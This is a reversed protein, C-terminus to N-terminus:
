SSQKSLDTATQLVQDAAQGTEQAARTVKGINGTVETTGQAAQSVNRAIEQTAAGQEEVAAAIASAIENIQRITGGIGRIADVAQATAGQVAQIQTGIEETAKSTQNALSKVENAVVAFGKGAEGARAAEITANLALLNTQSAIDNILSVVEGIRSAAEALGRVMADTRQAEDVAGSSIRSSQAVQRTIEAISSSLEEAAAAVTQVNNSASQAATAVIGSQHSTEEATNAMVEATSQMTSAQAGMGDVVSKVSAEFDNALKMMSARRDAEGRRKAEEQDARMREMATANDKFVQVAQAMVGIEDHRDLCPVAVGNDGDALRGMAATMGDLPRTIGRAVAIGLALVVASLALGAILLFNRMEYVPALIEDLGVEAVIAWTVGMFRVPGYAMANVEGSLGVAEGMGDKGALAETVAITDVVRKLVTPETLNRAQSRMRKDAGVLYVEGTKGLGSAMQLMKNISDLPMQFILVGMFQGELMVPAGIFSAPANGSPAYPRFDTFRAQAAQPNDRISRFLRALDGDKWRGNDLNDAFDAEKTVSYVVNGEPGVLFLDYYGRTELFNRFWTHYRVHVDSYDSGDEAKELAMRKGAPHPNGSVYAKQLDDYPNAVTAFGYGFEILADAVTRVGALIHVDQEISKLVQDLEARRGDRLAVLRADAAVIM